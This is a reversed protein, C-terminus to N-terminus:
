NYSVLERKMKELSRNRIIRVGEKTLFLKDAVEAIEYLRDNEIGFLLKIVERERESLKGISNNLITKNYSSDIEDEYDNKSYTGDIYGLFYANDIDPSMRDSEEDFIDLSYCSFEYIDSEDLIDIDYDEKLISLVESISPSRGYKLLFENKIQPVKNTKLSNPLKIMPHMFTIYSLVHKEIWYVAYTLLTNNTSIDFREIGNILGVNAESILDMLLSVDGNAYKKCISFVFRQNSNVLLNLASRDGAQAKIILDYSEERTLIKYKSIESLYKVLVPSKPTYYTVGEDNKKIKM